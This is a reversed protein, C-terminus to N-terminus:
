HPPPPASRSPNECGQTRGPPATGLAGPRSHDSGHRRRAVGSGIVSKQMCRPPERLSEAALTRFIEALPRLYGHSGMQCSSVALVSHRCCAAHPHVSWNLLNCGSPGVYVRVLIAMMAASSVRPRPSRNSPLNRAAIRRFVEVFPRKGHLFRYNGKGHRSSPETEPKRSGDQREEAVGPGAQGRSSRRRNGRVQARYALAKAFGPHVWALHGFFADRLTCFVVVSSRASEPASASQKPAPENRAIM